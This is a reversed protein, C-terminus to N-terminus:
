GQSSEPSPNPKRKRQTPPKQPKPPEPPADPLLRAWFRGRNEDMWKVLSAAAGCLIIGAPVTILLLMSNGGTIMGITTGIAVPGHKAANIAIKDLALAALPSEEFPILQAAAMKSAFERALAQTALKPKYGKLLSYFIGRAIVQPIGDGETGTLIEGPQVSFSMPHYDRPDGGFVYVMAWEASSQTQHNQPNPPPYTRAPITLASFGFTGTEDYITTEYVQQLPM